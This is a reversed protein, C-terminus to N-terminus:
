GVGVPRFVILSKSNLFGKVVTLKAYFACKNVKCKLFLLYNQLRFCISVRFTKTQKLSRCAYLM